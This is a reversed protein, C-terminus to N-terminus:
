PAHNVQIPSIRTIAFRAIIFGVLCVLLRRWDSGAVLYFGVLTISVRLLLSTMFWLAPQRAVLGKKITWYLGGFFFAGLLLGACLELLMNIM